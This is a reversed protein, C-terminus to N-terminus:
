APRMCIELFVARDEVIVQDETTLEPCVESIQVFLHLLPQGQNNLLHLGSLAHGLFHLCGVLHRPNTSHVADAVTRLFDGEPFQNVPLICYSVEEQLSCLFSSSSIQLFSSFETGGHRILLFLQKLFVVFTHSLM